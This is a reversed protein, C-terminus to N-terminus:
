FHLAVPFVLEPKVGAQIVAAYNSDYRLSTYKAETPHSLYYFAQNHEDDWDSPFGQDRLRLNDHGTNDEVYYGPTTGSPPVFSSLGEDAPDVFLTEDDLSTGLLNSGDPRRIRRGWVVEIKDPSIKSSKSLNP